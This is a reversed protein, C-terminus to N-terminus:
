RLLFHGLQFDGGLLNQAPTPFLGSCRTQLFASYFRFNIRICAKIILFLICISYTQVMYEKGWSETLIYGLATFVLVIEFFKAPERIDKYRVKQM